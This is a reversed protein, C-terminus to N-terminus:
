GRRWSPSDDGGLRAVTDTERLCGLLRRAVAKLLADGVPHGLSDNVGKFLDLDLMFLTVARGGRRLRTLSEEMRERLVARNSLDTLVDHRALYAIQTEAQKQATIDQHIAVWGGQQMPQHSVAFIRGDRLENVAYYPQSKAVQELREEVYHEANPPACGMAVRAQLIARLTTGPRTLGGAARVHRWLATASSWASIATSCACATRWTGSARHRFLM